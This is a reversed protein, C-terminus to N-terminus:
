AAMMVSASAYRNGDVVHAHSDDTRLSAEIFEGATITQLTDGIPLTLREGRM